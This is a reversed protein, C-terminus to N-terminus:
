QAYSAKSVSNNHCLISKSDLYNEIVTFVFGILIVFSSAQFLLPSRYFLSHHDTELCLCSLVFLVDRCINVQHHLRFVLSDIIVGEKTFWKILQKLIPLQDRILPAM